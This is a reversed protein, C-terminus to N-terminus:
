AQGAGVPEGAAAAVPEGAGEAPAAAPAGAAAGDEARFQSRTSRRRPERPGGDDKPASRTGKAEIISDAVEQMIIEFVPDSCRIHPEVHHRQEVAWAVGDHVHGDSPQILIGAFRHPQSRDDDGSNFRVLRAVCRNEIRCIEGFSDTM